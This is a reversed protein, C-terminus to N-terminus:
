TAYLSKKQNLRAFEILFLYFDASNLATEDIKLLFTPFDTMTKFGIMKIILKYIAQKTYIICSYPMDHM